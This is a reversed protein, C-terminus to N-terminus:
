QAARSRLDGRRRVSGQGGHLGAATRAWHRGDKTKPQRGAKPHPLYLWGSQAVEAHLCHERRVAGEARLGQRRRACLPKDIGSRMWLIWTGWRVVYAKGEVDVPRGGEWTDGAGGVAKASIRRWRARRVGASSRPGCRRGREGVGARRNEAYEARRPVLGARCAGSRARLMVRGGAFVRKRARERLEAWGDQGGHGGSTATATTTSRTMDKDLWSDKHVELCRDSTSEGRGENRQTEQQRHGKWERGWTAGNGDANQGYGFLICRWAGNVALCRVVCIMAARPSSRLDGKDFRKRIDADVSGKVTYEFRGRAGIMVADPLDRGVEYPSSVAPVDRKIDTTICYIQVLIAVHASCMEREWNDIFQRHIAFQIIRVRLSIRPKRKGTKPEIGMAFDAVSSHMLGFADGHLGMNVSQGCGWLEHELLTPDCDVSKGSHGSNGTLDAGDPTSNTWIRDSNALLPYREWQAASHHVAALQIYFIPQRKSGIMVARMSNTTDQDERAPEVAQTQSGTRPSLNKMSAMGMINRKTYETVRSVICENCTQRSKEVGADMSPDIQRVLSLGVGPSVGSRLTPMGQIETDAPPRLVTITCYILYAERIKGEKKMNKTLIKHGRGHVAIAGCGLYGRPSHRHPQSIRMSFSVTCFIGAFPSDAITWSVRRRAFHVGSNSSLGLIGHWRSIVLYGAIIFFISNRSWSTKHHTTFELLVLSQLPPTSSLRPPNIDLYALMYFSRGLAERKKPNTAANEIFEMKGDWVLRKKSWSFIVENARRMEHRPNEMARSETRAPGTWERRTTIKSITM